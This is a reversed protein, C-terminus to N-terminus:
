VFALAIAIVGLLALPLFWGRVRGSPAPMPNDNAAAFAQGGGAYAQRRRVPLIRHPDRRGAQRRQSAIM